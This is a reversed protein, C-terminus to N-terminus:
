RGDKEIDASPRDSGRCWVQGHGLECGKKADYCCGDPGGKGGGQHVCGGTQKGGYVRGESKSTFARPCRCECLILASAPLSHRTHSTCVVSPFRKGEPMVVVFNAAACLPEERSHPPEILRGKNGDMEWWKAVDRRSPAYPFAYRTHYYDGCEGNIHAGMIWLVCQERGFCVHSERM